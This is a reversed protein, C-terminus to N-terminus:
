KRVGALHLINTIYADAPTHTNLASVKQDLQALLVDDHVVYADLAIGKLNGASPANSILDGIEKMLVPRTQPTSNDLLLLTFVAQKYTDADALHSQVFSASLLGSKALCRVADISLFPNPSDVLVMLVANNKKANEAVFLDPHKKHYNLANPVYQQWTAPILDDNSFKGSGSVASDIRCIITGGLIFRNDHDSWLNEDIDAVDVVPHAQPSYPAIWRYSEAVNRKKRNLMEVSIFHGSIEWGELITEQGPHLVLGTKADSIDADNSRTLFKGDTFSPVLKGVSLIGISSHLLHDFDLEGLDLIIQKDRDLHPDTFVNNAKLPISILFLLIMTLIFNRPM